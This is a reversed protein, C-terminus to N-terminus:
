LSPAFLAVDVTKRDDAVSYVNAGRDTGHDALWSPREHPVYGAPATFAIDHLGSANELHVTMGYNTRSFRYKTAIFRQLFTASEALGGTTLRDAHHLKEVTNLFSTFPADFKSAVLLDYGHSYLLMVSRTQAAYAATDDLWDRVDNPRIKAISMEALSADRDIPMIPFAWVSSSVMRGDYFARTASMGTDGTYYYSNMGLREIIDTMEPQPHAGDPAAFSQIPKGTITSLCDNNRKILKSIQPGDLSGDEVGWAFYNHAWGGHSGITGYRELERVLPAGLGCADLGQHDGPRDRDPGATVDFEMPVAERVLHDAILHPISPWEAQSDLHINIILRGIGGPSPLLHPVGATHVLFQQLILQMPFADSHAKLYGLPLGVWLVAGRGIKRMGLVPINGSRADIQVDPATVDADALPYILPGYKYSAIERQPTLKGHPIGWRRVAEDSSFAFRGHFLSKAPGGAYREYDVGAVDATAARPLFQGFANRTGVDNVFAVNGGLAAYQRMVGAMSAPIWGDLGDGFVLAPFAAALEEPRKLVIDTSPIIAYPIGNDEFFARYADLLSGQREITNPDYVMGVAIRDTPALTALSYVRRGTALGLLVLMAILLFRRSM